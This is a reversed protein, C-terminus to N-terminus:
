GGNGRVLDGTAMAVARARIVTSWAPHTLVWFRNTLVADVVLRAVDSPPLGETRMERASDRMFREVTEGESPPVGPPRNREAYAINTDVAGPCLLSVGVGSGQCEMRLTETLAVVGFKAVNYPAISPIAQLGATSATNIIHGHGAAKMAPVFTRVGHIVGWLDVDLVWRWTAMAIDEVLGGAVVGANNHVIDVTGFREIARHRLEEVSEISAVDTAVGLVEHGQELLEDVALHLPQEEVDAMVVRGGQEAFARSVALGIGSAAGTVVCVKDSFTPM